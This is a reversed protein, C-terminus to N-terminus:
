RLQDYESGRPRVSGLQSLDEAIKVSPFFSLGSVPENSDAIRFPENAQVPVFFDAGADMAAGARLCSAIECAEELCFSFGALCSQEM